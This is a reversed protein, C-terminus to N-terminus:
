RKYLNRICKREERKLLDNSNKLFLELGFHLNNMEKIKDLELWKYGDSEWSDQPVFENDVIGLFNHYRFSKTPTEYIYAPIFDVSGEYETEEEIERNLADEITEEEDVKGGVIGYTHPENVFRSRKQIMFRCTDRAMFLTGAGIDGWFTDGAKNYYQEYM